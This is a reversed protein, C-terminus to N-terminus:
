GFILARSIIALGAVVVVLMLALGLVRKSACRLKSVRRVPLCERFDTPSDLYFIASWVYADGVRYTAGGINGHQPQTAM